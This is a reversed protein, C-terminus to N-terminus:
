FHGECVDVFSVLPVDVDPDVSVFVGRYDGTPFQFATMEEFRHMSCDLSGADFLLELQERGLGQLILDEHVGEGLEEIRFDVDSRVFLPDYGDRDYSAVVRLGAGVLDGLADVLADGDAPTM